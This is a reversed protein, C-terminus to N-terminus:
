VNFECRVQRAPGALPTSVSTHAPTTSQAIFRFQAADRRGCLLHLAPVRLLRLRTAGGLSTLTSSHFRGAM